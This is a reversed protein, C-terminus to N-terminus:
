PIEKKKEKPIAAALIVVISGLIAAFFGIGYSLVAAEVLGLWFFYFGAGLLPVVGGVSHTFAVIGGVVVLISTVIVVVPALPGLPSLPDQASQLSEWALRFLQWLSLEVNFQLPAPTLSIIMWTLFVSLLVIVAGVPRIVLRIRENNNMEM